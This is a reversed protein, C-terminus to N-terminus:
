GLGTRGPVAGDTVFEGGVKRWAQALAESALGHSSGQYGQVLIWDEWRRGAVRIPGHPDGAANDIEIPEPILDGLVTVLTVPPKM